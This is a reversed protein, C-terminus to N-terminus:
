PGDEAETALYDAERKLLIHRACATYGNGGDDFTKTMQAVIDPDANSAVIGAYYEIARHLFTFMLVPREASVILNKIEAALDDAASDMAANEITGRKSM